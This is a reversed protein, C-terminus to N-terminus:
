YCYWFAGLTPGKIVRLGTELDILKSGFLLYKGVIQGEGRGLRITARLRSPKLFVNNVHVYDGVLVDYYIFAPGSALKLERYYWVGEKEEPVNTRRLITFGSRSTKRAIGGRVPTAEDGNAFEEYAPPGLISWGCGGSNITTEADVFNTEWGFRAGGFDGYSCRKNPRPKWKGGVYEIFEFVCNSISGVERVLGPNFTDDFRGVARDEWNKYTEGRIIEWGAPIQLEDASLLKGNEFVIFLFTKKDYAYFFSRDDSLFGGDARVVDPCFALTKLTTIEKSDPNWSRLACGGSALPSFFILRQDYEALVKPPFSILIAFAFFLLTPRFM